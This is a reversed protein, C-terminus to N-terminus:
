RRRTALVGLRLRKAEPYRKTDEPATATAVTGAGISFAAPVARRIRGGKSAVSLAMLSFTATFPWDAASSHKGACTRKGRRGGAQDMEKQGELVTVAGLGRAEGRM